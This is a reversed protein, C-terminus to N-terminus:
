WDAPPRPRSVPKSATSPRRPPGRSAGGSIGARRTWTQGRKLLLRVPSKILPCRCGPRQHVASAKVSGGCVCPDVCSDHVPQTKKLKLLNERM